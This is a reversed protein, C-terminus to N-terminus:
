KRLGYLVGGPLLSNEIQQEVAQNFSVARAKQGETIKSFDFYGPQAAFELDSVRATLAEIDAQLQTDAKSISGPYVDQAIFVTGAEKEPEEHPAVWENKVVQYGLSRLTRIASVHQLAEHGELEIKM